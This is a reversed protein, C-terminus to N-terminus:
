NDLFLITESGTTIEGSIGFYLSYRELCLTPVSVVSLFMNCIVGLTICILLKQKQAYMSFFVSCYIEVV